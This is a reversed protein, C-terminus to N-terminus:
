LSRYIERRHGAHVVLIVLRGDDVRYVARYNGYRIRYLGAYGTLPKVAHNIAYPDDGLTTLANLLGIADAQPIARLSRRAAPRFEFAYKM